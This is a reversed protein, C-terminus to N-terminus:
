KGFYITDRDFFLLGGKLGTNGLPLGSSSWPIVIVSGNPCPVLFGYQEISSQKDNIIQVLGEGHQNDQKLQLINSLIVICALLAIFIPIFRATSYIM